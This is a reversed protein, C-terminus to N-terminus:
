GYMELHLLVASGARSLDVTLVGETRDWRAGADGAAEFARSM